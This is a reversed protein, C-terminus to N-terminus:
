VSEDDNSESLSISLKTEKARSNCLLNVSIEFVKNDLYHV